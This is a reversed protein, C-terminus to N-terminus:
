PSSSQYKDRIEQFPIVSDIHTQLAKRLGSARERYESAVDKTERTDEALNYLQYPGDTWERLLKLDGKRLAYKKKAPNTHHYCSIRTRNPLATMGEELPSLLSRGDFEGDHAIGAADLLTPFIDMTMGNLPTTTGAKLRGPWTLSACVRIGGEYM